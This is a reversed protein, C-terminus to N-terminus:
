VCSCAFVHAIQAIFVRKSFSSETRHFRAKRVALPELRKGNAQRTRPVQRAGTRPGEAVM